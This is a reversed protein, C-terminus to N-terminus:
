KAEKTLRQKQWEVHANLRNRNYDEKGCVCVYLTQHYITGDEKKHSFYHEQGLAKDVETKVLALLAKRMSPSFGSGYAAIERKAIEDISDELSQDKSM